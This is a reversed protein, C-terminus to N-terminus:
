GPKRPGARALESARAIMRTVVQLTDVSSDAESMTEPMQVGISIAAFYAHLVVGCRDYFGVIGAVFAIIVSLVFLAAARWALSKDTAEGYLWYGGVLVLAGIAVPLGVSVITEENHFRITLVAFLGITVIWFHPAPPHSYYMAIGSGFLMFLAINRLFIALGRVQAGPAFEALPPVQLAHRLLSATRSFTEKQMGFSKALYSVRRSAAINWAPFFRINSRESLWFCLRGVVSVMQGLLVWSIANIAFGLPTALLFLLVVVFVKVESGIPTSGQAPFCMLERLSKQGFLPIYYHVVLLLLFVFGAASDSLFRRYPIQIGDKSINIDGRM